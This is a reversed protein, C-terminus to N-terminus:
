LSLFINSWINRLYSFLDVTFNSLDYINVEPRDKMNMKSNGVPNLSNEIIKTMDGVQKTYNQNDSFNMNHQNTYNQTDYNQKPFTNNKPMHRKPRIRKNSELRNEYDRHQVDKLM